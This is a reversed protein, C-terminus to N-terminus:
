GTGYVAGVDIWTGLQTLDGGRMVGLIQQPSCMAPLGTFQKRDCTYPHGMFSPQDVQASLGSSVGKATVGDPGLGRLIVYLNMFSRFSVTGAGIPDLGKGYREVVKTYLQTDADPAGRVIPGEVNFIAGDTKAPGAAAIISPVACAGVYFATAKSGLTHLSDFAGKCGTDATLIVIADPHSAVAAQIPSSLDTATIPSPVLQVQTVGLKHLTAEGYKASQSIPGFDGYVIAVKKAKLTKAAYDAFAVMAGWTGGSWQYSNADEVAQTSVPIGGVFPIGNSALTDIGNGFVDIGGLVVPVKEEVFHQACTTSGEASFKTNCVEVELPRGGVGGLQQNVFAVAAQVAQSLEPFSGAPTNEQNIMGLRLPAGKATTAKAPVLDALTSTRACALLDAGACAGRAPTSPTTATGATPDSRQESCATALLLVVVAAICAKTM